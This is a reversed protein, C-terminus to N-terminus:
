DHCSMCFEVVIVMTSPAWIFNNLSWSRHQGDSTSQGHLRDTAWIQQLQQAVVVNGLQLRSGMFDVDIPQGHPRTRADDDNGM